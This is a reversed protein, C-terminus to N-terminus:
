GTKEENIRQYQWSELQVRVCITCQLLMLPTKCCHCGEDGGEWNGLYGGESLIINESNLQQTYRQSSPMLCSVVISCVLFVDTCVIYAFVKQLLFVPTCFVIRATFSVM